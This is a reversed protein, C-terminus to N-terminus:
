IEEFPNRYINFDFRESINSIQERCKVVNPFCNSLLELTLDSQTIDLCEFNWAFHKVALFAAKM